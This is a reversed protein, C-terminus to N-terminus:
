KLNKKRKIAQEVLPALSVSDLDVVLGSKPYSEAYDGVMEDIKRRLGQGNTSESIEKYLEGRFIVLSERHDSIGDKYIDNLVAVSDRGSLEAELSVYAELWNEFISAEGYGSEAYWGTFTPKNQKVYVLLDRKTQNSINTSLAPFRIAEFLRDRVPGNDVDIIEHLLTDAQQKSELAVDPVTELLENYYDVQTIFRRSFSYDLLERTDSFTGLSAYVLTASGAVDAYEPNRIIAKIIERIKDNNPHESRDRYMRGLYHILLNRQDSNQARGFYDWFSDVADSSSMWGKLWKEEFNVQSFRMENNFGSLHTEIHASPRNASAPNKEVKQLDTQYFFKVGISFLVLALIIAGFIRM